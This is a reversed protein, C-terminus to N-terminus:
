ANAHVAAEEDEEHDGFFIDLLGVFIGKTTALAVGDFIEQEKKEIALKHELRALEAKKEEIQKELNKEMIHEEEISCQNEEKECRYCVVM